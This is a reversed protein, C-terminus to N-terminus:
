DDAQGIVPALGALMFGRNRITKIEFGFSRMPDLKKRLYGVYVDVVNGSSAGKDAWLSDFIQARSLTEDRHKAFMSLLEFERQTLMVKRQDLEISWDSTDLRAPRLPMPTARRQQVKLRAVLEDFSFPKVVYDDAGAELGRTRDDVESLASLMLIPTRHGATRVARVLDFGSDEGIMVDVIAASVEADEFRALASDVRNETLTAYGHLELGRSLASLIEPDDDVILIRATDTM